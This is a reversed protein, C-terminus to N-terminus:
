QLYNNGERRLKYMNIDQKLKKILQQRKNARWPDFVISFNRGSVLDKPQECLWDICADIDLLTSIREIYVEKKIPAEGRKNVYTKRKYVGLSSLKAIVSREAVGLEDALTKVDRGAQYDATLKEVIDQTYKM